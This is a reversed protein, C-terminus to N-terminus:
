KILMKTPTISMVIRNRLRHCHSDWTVPALITNTLIQPKLTQWLLHCPFNYEIRYPNGTPNLDQIPPITDLIVVNVPRTGPARAAISVIAGIANQAPQTDFVTKDRLSPARMAVPQGGPGGDWITHPSGGFTWNPAAARLTIRESSFPQNTFENLNNITQITEADYEEVLAILKKEDEETPDPPLNDYIPTDM